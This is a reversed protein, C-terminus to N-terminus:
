VLNALSMTYSESKM